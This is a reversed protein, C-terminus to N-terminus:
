AGKGQKSNPLAAATGESPKLKAALKLLIRYFWWFQMACLGLLSAAGARGLYAAEAPNLVLLGYAAAPLNVVRTVLFLLFFAGEVGAHVPTNQWVAIKTCFYSVAFCISSLECVFLSATWRLLTVPSLLFVVTIALTIGHHLLFERDRMPIAYFALDTFLYALTFPPAAMLLEYPFATFGSSSFSYLAFLALPTVVLHHLLAVAYGAMVGRTKRDLDQPPLLSPLLRDAVLHLVACLATLLVTHLLLQLPGYAALLSAGEIGSAAPSAHQHLELFGMRRPASRASTSAGPQRWWWIM